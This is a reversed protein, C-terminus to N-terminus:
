DGTWGPILLGGCGLVWVCMLLTEVEWMRIGIDMADVLLGDFCSEVSSFVVTSVYIWFGVQEILQVPSAVLRDM